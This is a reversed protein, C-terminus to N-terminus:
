LWCNVQRFYEVDKVAQEFKKMGDSHQRFLFFTLIQGIIM